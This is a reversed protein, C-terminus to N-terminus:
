NDVIRYTTKSNTIWHRVGGHHSCAGRGTASSRWGDKCRAGVRYSYTSAVARGPKVKNTKVYGTRNDIRVQIWELDISDVFAVNDYKKLSRIINSTDSAADFLKSSDTLYYTTGSQSYSTSFVGLVLCLSLLLNKLNNM